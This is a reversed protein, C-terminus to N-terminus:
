FWRWLGAPVDGLPIHAYTVGLWLLAGVLWNMVGARPIAALRPWYTTRAEWGAWSPDLRRKKRDQLHAGVLALVILAGMFVLTRLDPMVLVHAVAWLAIGWMMPHRTVLFAGSPVKGEAQGEAMPMAPNGRFSGVLLVLAVLTLVSGAIWAWSAMPQFLWPGRPSAAFVHGLAGLTLLAVLSYVGLFGREGLRAVLPARLPHSLAFHTGVFAAASAILAIANDPM